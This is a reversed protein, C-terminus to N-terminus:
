KIFKLFDSLWKGYNYNNCYLLFLYFIKNVDLRQNNEGYKIMDIVIFSILGDILVKGEFEEIEEIEEVVKDQKFLMLFKNVESENIRMEKEYINSLEKFIWNDGNCISDRIKGIDRNQNDKILDKNILNCSYFKIGEEKNFKGILYLLQKDNKLNNILIQCDKNDLLIDIIIENNFKKRLHIFGNNYNFGKLPANIIQIKFLKFIEKFQKIIEEIKKNNDQFEKISKNLEKILYNNSEEEYSIEKKNRQNRRKFEKYDKDKNKNNIKIQSYFRICNLYNRKIIIRNIM